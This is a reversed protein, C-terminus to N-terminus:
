KMKWEDVKIINKTLSHHFCCYIGLYKTISLAGLVIKENAFNRIPIVITSKVRGVKSCNVKM